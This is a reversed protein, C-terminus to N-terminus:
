CARLSVNRPDFRKATNGLSLINALRDLQPIPLLAFQNPEVIRRRPCENKRKAALITLGGQNGEDHEQM